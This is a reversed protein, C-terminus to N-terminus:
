VNGGGGAAGWSVTLPMDFFLAFCLLLVSSRTVFHPLTVIPMGARGGGVRVCVFVCVCARVCARVCVCVCVGCVCM